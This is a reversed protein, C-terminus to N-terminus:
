NGDIKADIPSVRNGIQIHDIHKFVEHCRKRFASILKKVLLLEEKQEPSYKVKVLIERDITVGIVQNEYNNKSFIECSKEAFLAPIFLVTYKKM